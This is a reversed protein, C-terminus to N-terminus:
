HLKRRLAIHARIMARAKRTVAGSGAEVAIRRLVGEYFSMTDLAMAAPDLGARLTGKGRASRYARTLKDLRREHSKQFEELIPVLEDVYECRLSAIRFVESVVKDTKLDAIM